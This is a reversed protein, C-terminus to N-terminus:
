YHFVCVSAEFRENDAVVIGFYTDAPAFTGRDTNGLWTHAHTGSTENIKSILTVVPIENQLSDRRVIAISVSAPVKLSYRIETNNKFSDFASPTFRLNTVVGADPAGVPLRCSSAFLLFSILMAFLLRIPNRQQMM